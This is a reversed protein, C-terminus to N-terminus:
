DTEISENHLIKPIFLRSRILLQTFIHTTIWSGKKITHFLIIKKKLQVRVCIIHLLYNNDFVVFPTINMSQNNAYWNTHIKRIWLIEM